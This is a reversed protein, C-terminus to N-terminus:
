VHKGGGFNDVVQLFIEAARLCARAHMAIRFETEESMRDSAEAGDPIIRGVNRLFIQTALVQKDEKDVAM